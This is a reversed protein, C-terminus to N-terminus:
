TKRMHTSRREKEEKKTLPIFVERETDERLRGFYRMDEANTCPLIYTSTLDWSKGITDLQGGKDETNGKEGSGGGGGKNPNQQNLRADIHM